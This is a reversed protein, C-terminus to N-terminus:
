AVSVEPGNHFAGCICVNWYGDKERLLMFKILQWQWGLELMRITYLTENAGIALPNRKLAGAAAM